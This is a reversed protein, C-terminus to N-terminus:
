GGAPAVDVSGTGVVRTPERLPADVLTVHYRGAPVGAVTIDYSYVVEGAVCIAVPNGRRVVRVVVSDGQRMAEGEALMCPGSRLSWRGAIEGAGGEFRVVPLSDDPAPQRVQEEIRVPLSDALAATVVPPTVVEDLSGGPQVNADTCGAAALLVGAAVLSRCSRVPM